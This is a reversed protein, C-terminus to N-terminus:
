GIYAKLLINVFVDITIYSYGLVMLSLVKELVHNKSLKQYGSVVLYIFSILMPLCYRGQPQYDNFYSYYISICITIVCMFFMLLGFLNRNYIGKVDDAAKKRTKLILKAGIGVAFMLTMFHYHFTSLPIEMYGFKGIFSWWSIEFWQMDFLMYSLSLNQNFPTTRNSPKLAEIANKEAYYRSTNLGLLDQYLIYNRIFWWGAIILAPIAVWLVRILIFSWKSSIEKDRLVSILCYLVAVIIIGYANYYSMLCLGIGSGLFLCSRLSWRKEKGNLMGYIIWAVSFIAIADTNVYASIFAFQPLFAVIVPMIWAVKSSFLKKSILMCFAVTGVSFLVNPFRAATVLVAEATSFISFIKMFVASVMYSLIPTFGYSIGWDANTIAPDEAKPIANHEYIYKPMLYRLGEDPAHNFPIVLSWGLYFCGIGILFAIGAQKNKGEVKLLLSLMLMINCLLIVVKIGVSASSTYVISFLYKEICYFILGFVGYYWGKCSCEKKKILLIACFILIIDALIYFLVHEAVKGVLILRDVYTITFSHLALEGTEGEIDLRVTSVFHGLEVSYEGNEMREFLSKDNENFGQGMDYYLSLYVDQTEEVKLTIEEVYGEVGTIVIYPDDGQVILMNDSIELNNVPYQEDLFIEVEEGETEAGVVLSRILEKQFMLLIGAMILFYLLGGLIIKIGIHNKVQM